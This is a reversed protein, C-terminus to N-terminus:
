LAGRCGTFNDKNREASFENVVNVTCVQNFIDVEGECGARLFRCTQSNYIYPTKNGTVQNQILQRYPPTTNHLPYVMGGSIQLMHGLHSLVYHIDCSEPIGYNQLVKGSLFEQEIIRVPV